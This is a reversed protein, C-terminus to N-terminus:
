VREQTKRVISAATKSSVLSGFRTQIRNMAGPIIEEKGKHFQEFAENAVEEASMIKNKFLKSEDLEAADKFGTSTPGPCLVSVQVGLDRWENSLALSFSKVYAKSAYYVAMLPGPFYAAISAVNLIRGEGRQIMDKGFLKTLATLSTINLQIMAEEKVLETKHFEGFLGVGANNILTHVKLGKETLQQYLKQAAGEQSLDSEFVTIEGGYKQSLEDKLQNLREVNRAALAINEGAEAYKMALSKGIGSSAGTILVTM